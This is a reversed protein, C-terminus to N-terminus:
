MKIKLLGRQTKITSADVLTWNCQHQENRKGHPVDQAVFHLTNESAKCHGVYTFTRGYDHKSMGVIYYVNDEGKQIYVMEDHQEAYFWVSQGQLVAIATQTVHEQTKTADIVHVNDHQQEM